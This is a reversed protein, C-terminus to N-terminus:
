YSDSVTEVFSSASRATKTTTSPRKATYKKVIGGMQVGRTIAPGKIAVSFRADIEKQLGTSHSSNLTYYAITGTPFAKVILPIDMNEALM